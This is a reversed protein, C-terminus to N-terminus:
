SSPPPHRLSADVTRVFDDPAVSGHGWHGDFAAAPRAAIVETTSAHRAQMARVTDRVSTLMAVYDDLRAHSMVPGRAPIFRSSAPFSKFFTMSKVLGDISGGNTTDIVPYGGDGLSEGLYVVDDGEFHVSVDASSYGPPQHVAHIETAGVNLQLVETFGLEPRLAGARPKTVAYRLNKRRPLSPAGRVGAAM